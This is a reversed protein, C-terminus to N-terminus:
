FARRQSKMKLECHEDKSTNKSENEEKNYTNVKDLKEILRHVYDVTRKGYSRVKTQNHVNIKDLNLLCVTLKESLEKYIFDNTTESFRLIEKELVRSDKEIEAISKEACNIHQLIFCGPTVVKGKLLFLFDGKNCPGRGCKFQIQKGTVGQPLKPLKLCSCHYWTKCCQCEIMKGDDVLEYEKGCICYEIKSEQKPTKPTFPVKQKRLKRTSRSLDDAEDSSIDIPQRNSRDLSLRKRKRELPRNETVITSHDDEPNTIVPALNDKIIDRVNGRNFAWILKLYKRNKMSNSWSISNASQGFPGNESLDDDNFPTCFTRLARGLVAYDIKNRKIKMQGKQRKM